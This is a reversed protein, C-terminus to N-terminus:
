HNGQHKAKRCFSWNVFQEEESGGAQGQRSLVIQEAVMWSVRVSAYIEGLLATVNSAFLLWHPVPGLVPERNDLYASGFDDLSRIGTQKFIIFLRLALGPLRGWLVRPENMQLMLSHFSNGGGLLVGWAKFFLRLKM